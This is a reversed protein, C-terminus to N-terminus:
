RKGRALRELMAALVTDGQDTDFVNQAHASGPVLLIETGEPNADALKQPIDAGPEDKSAIFLKPASGLHEVVTDPSLLVLQDALDPQGSVLQLIADAGASGGVLAVEAIGGARLDAVAAAISEAGIDQVAVVTAGQDAIATAQNEWSAADFAAGHALVVGYAGDGWTLNGEGATVTATASAGAPGAAGASGAQDGGGVTPGSRGSQGGAACGAVMVTIALVLTTLVSGLPRTM